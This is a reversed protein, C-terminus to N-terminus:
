ILIHGLALAALTITINDIEGFPLSEIITVGLSILTIPLLYPALSTSFIGNLSYVWVILVSLVWSGTFMGLSGVWSKSESWPLKTNGFRRGLIDAMGDGGCLAMLAIIGIPSDYWYLLTLIVFIIGYYVPGQLIEHRDGTRSMSNVTSEAKIVGLGILIFQVTIVLPVIAALYRSSPQNTFLLWCLVFIPGTGIHILKRSLKAGLWGKDAAIDNIKLWVLAAAFTSALAIVDNQLM